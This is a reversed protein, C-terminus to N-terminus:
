VRLANILDRLHENSTPQIEDISDVVFANVGEVHAFTLHWDNTTIADKMKVRVKSFDKELWVISIDSILYHGERGDVSDSVIYNGFSVHVIKGESQIIINAM